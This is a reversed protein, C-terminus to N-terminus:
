INSQFAYNLSFFLNTFFFKMSSSSGSRSGDSKTYYVMDYMMEDGYYGNSSDYSSSPSSSKSQSNPTKAASNDPRYNADYRPHAAAFGGYAGYSVPRYPAPYLNSPYGNSYLNYSPLPAYGFSPDQYRYSLVLTDDSFYDYNAKILFCFSKLYRKSLLM